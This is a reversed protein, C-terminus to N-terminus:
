IKLALGDQLSRRYAIWGPILSVLVGAGIAVAFLGWQQQDPLTIAINIGYLDILVPRALYLVSYLM